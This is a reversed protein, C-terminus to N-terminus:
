AIKEKRFRFGIYLLPLLGATFFIIFGAPASSYSEQLRFEFDRYPIGLIKNKYQIQEIWRVKGCFNIEDHVWITIVQGANEKLFNFQEDDIILSRYKEITGDPMKLYVRNGCSSRGRSHFEQLTGEIRQMQDLSYVPNIMDLFFTPCFALFIISFFYLVHTLASKTARVFYIQYLTRAHLWSKFQTLM